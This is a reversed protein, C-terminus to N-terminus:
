RLRAFPLPLRQRFLRAGLKCAREGTRRQVQRDLLFIELGDSAREDLARQGGHAAHQTVSAHRGVSDIADDHDAARRAHRQHLALHLGQEALRGQDVEVGIADNGQARRHLGLRQGAVRSRGSMSSSSTIASDSPSSVM